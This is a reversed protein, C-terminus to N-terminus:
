PAVPDTRAAGDALWRGSNRYEERVTSVPLNDAIPKSLPLNDPAPAPVAAAPDGRYFADSYAPVAAFPLPRPAVFAPLRTAMITAPSAERGAYRQRFASPSGWSDQMRYFNHSGIVALKALRTAWTPLVEHTHYHTAHGVPAYVAGALAAAAIRRAREWGPGSPMAALSGDCTFTFQCGGGARLPGQYVVGCVSAPYAPHRVRNLVVQAVARQGDESESRAEYYVAEALCQLSRHQDLATAARFVVSAARPNPLGSLPIAANMAAAASASVPNLLMAVPEPATDGPAQGAAAGPAARDAPAPAPAAYSPVCSASLLLMSLCALERGRWRLAPMIAELILLKLVAM